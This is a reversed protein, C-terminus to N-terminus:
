NATPTFDDLMGKDLLEPSENEEWDDFNLVGCTMVVLPRAHAPSNAVLLADFADQGLAGDWDTVELIYDGWRTQGDYPRWNLGDWIYLVGYPAAEDCVKVVTDPPAQLFCWAGDRWQALENEHGAWAGSASATDDLTLEDAGEEWDDLTLPTDGDEWDDWALAHPEPVIYTDRENPTAPPDLLSASLPRLEWVRATFGSRAMASELGPITGAAQKQDFAAFIRQRYSDDTEASLRYVQRTKGLRDLYAGSATAIFFQPLIMRQAAIAADLEAGLTDILAGIRTKYRGPRKMYSPLLWWLYDGASEFDFIPLDNRVSKLEDESLAAGYMTLGYEGLGIGTDNNTTTM